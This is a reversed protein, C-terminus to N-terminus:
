YQSIRVTRLFDKVKKNTNFHLINEVIDVKKTPNKNEPIGKRIITNKLNILVTKVNNVLKENKSTFLDITLLSPSHCKFIKGFYKM